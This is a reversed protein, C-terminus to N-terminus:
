AAHDIHENLVIAGVRHLSVLFDYTDNPCLWFINPPEAVDAIASTPRPLDGLPQYYVDVLILPVDSAWEGVEPPTNRHGQLVVYDEAAVASMDYSDNIQAQLSVQARVAYHLRAALREQPRMREYGRILYGLLEDATDAYARETFGNLLMEFRFPSGDERLPVELLAADEVSTNPMVVSM